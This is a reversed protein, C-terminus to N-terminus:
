TQRQSGAISGSGLVNDKRHLLHCELVLLDRADPPSGEPPVPYELAVGLEQPLGDDLVPPRWAQERMCQGALVSSEDDASQLRDGLGPGQEVLGDFAVLLQLGGPTHGSGLRTEARKPEP